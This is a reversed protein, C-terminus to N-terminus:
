FYHKCICLEQVMVKVKLPVFVVGLQGGTKSLMMFNVYYLEKRKRISASVCSWSARSCVFWLVVYM